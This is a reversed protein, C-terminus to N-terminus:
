DHALVGARIGQRLLTDGHLSVQSDMLCFSHALPHPTKCERANIGPSLLMAMFCDVVMYIRPPNTRKIFRWNEDRADPSSELTVLLVTNPGAIESSSRPVCRPPSTRTVLVLLRSACSWSLVAIAFTVPLLKMVLSAKEPLLPNEVTTCFEPLLTIIWFAVTRLKCICYIARM